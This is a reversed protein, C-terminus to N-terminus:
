KGVEAGGESLEEDWEEEETEWLIDDDGGCRGLGWTGDSM